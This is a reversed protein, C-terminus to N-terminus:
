RANRELVKMTWRIHYRPLRYSRCIPRGCPSQFGRPALRGSFNGGSSFPKL